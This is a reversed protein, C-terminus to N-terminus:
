GRAKRRQFIEQVVFVYASPNITWRLYEVLERPFFFILNDEFAYDLVYEEGAMLLLTRMKKDNIIADRLEKWEKKANKSMRKLYRDFDDGIESISPQDEYVLFYALSIAFIHRFIKWFYRVLVDLNKDKLLIAEPFQEEIWRGVKKSNLFKVLAEMEEETLRKEPYLHNEKEILEALHERNCVTESNIKILLGNGILKEYAKVFEKGNETDERILKIAEAETKQNWFALYVLKEYPTLIYYM